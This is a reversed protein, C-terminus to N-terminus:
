IVVEGFKAEVKTGRIWSLLAPAFAVCCGLFVITNHFGRKCCSEVHPIAAHAASENLIISSCPILLRFDDSLTSKWFGLDCIV